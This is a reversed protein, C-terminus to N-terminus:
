RSCPIEPRYRFARLTRGGHSENAQQSPEQAILFDSWVDDGNHRILRACKTELRQKALTADVGMDALEVFRDIGVVHEIVALGLVTLNEFFPDGLRPGHRREDGRSRRVGGVAHVHNGEENEIGHESKLADTIENPGGAIRTGLSEHEASRGASSCQGAFTQLM